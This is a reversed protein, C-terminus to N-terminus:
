PLTYISIMYNEKFMEDFEEYEESTLTINSFMDTLCRQICSIRVEGSKADSLLSVFETLISNLEVSAYSKRRIVGYVNSELLVERFEDYRVLAKKEEESYETIVFSLNDSDWRWGHSWYEIGETELPHTIIKWGRGLLEEDSLTQLNHMNGDDDMWDEEPLDDPFDTGPEIYLRIMM